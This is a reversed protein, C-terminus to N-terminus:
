LRAVHAFTEDFDVGEVQAYGQAVLLAKNTEIINEGEPKPVLTWVTNRRFQLLEEQMANIWYEDKLAADVSTPQITSTYCIDIIMKLYDVKDKKRTTIGVSPDGIILSSPHNKRVHSSPIRDTEEVTIEKPTSKSSIDFSNAQTDAKPADAFTTNPVITGTPAEDDGDGFTVHGSTCEKLKSFFSRNGTTDLVDVEYAVELIRWAEKTTSCSNILKFVNLDVGNFIANLARANRVSAQEEADTWNVELKPVFAGDVTIMPPEYGAVLARWAREDIAEAILRVTLRGGLIRKRKKWLDGM